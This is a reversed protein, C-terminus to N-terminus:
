YTTSKSLQAWEIPAKRNRPEFGWTLSNHPIHCGIYCPYFNGDWITPIFQSASAGSYWKVGLEDCDKLMELIEAYTKVHIQVGSQLTKLLEQSMQYGGKNTFNDM